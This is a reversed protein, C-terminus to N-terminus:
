LSRHRLEPTDAGLAEATRAALARLDEHLERTAAVYIPGFVTWPQGQEDTVLAGAEEALLLGAAFHVPLGQCVYVAGGLSGRALYVLALTTSLMRVSWRQEALARISFEVGFQELLSPGPLIPDLSVVDAAPDVRVPTAESGGLLWAGSGHQAAYVEGTVGDGVVGVTVRGDEVLAVNVAYFPLGVAYNGTGCLPDVLWYPGVEPIRGDGEEGVFAISPAREHLVRQIAAQAALDTGTVLDGPGKQRVDEAGERALIVALAARVAEIAARTENRFAPTSTL